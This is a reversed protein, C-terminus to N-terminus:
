NKLNNFLQLYKRSISFPSNKLAFSFAEQSYDLNMERLECLKETLDDDYTHIWNEGAYEQALPSSKPLIVHCGYSAANLILNANANYYEPLVVVNCKKYFSYLNNSLLSHCKISGNELKTLSDADIPSSYCILGEIRSANLSATLYNIANPGANFDGLGVVFDTTKEVNENKFCGVISPCHIVQVRNNPLTYHPESNFNSHQVVITDAVDTLFKRIERELAITEPTDSSFVQYINWVIKVGLSKASLISTKFEQLLEDNKSLSSLIPALDHIHIVDNADLERAEQCFEKVHRSNKIVTNEESLAALYISRLTFIQAGWHPFSLIQM